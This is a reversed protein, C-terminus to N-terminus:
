CAVSLVPGIVDDYVELSVEGEGQFKQYTIDCVLKQHNWTLINLFDAM